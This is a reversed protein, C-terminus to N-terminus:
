SGLFKEFRTQFTYKEFAIQFTAGRFGFISRKGKNKLPKKRKLLRSDGANEREDGKRGGRVRDGHVTNRTSM